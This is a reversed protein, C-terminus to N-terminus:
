ANKKRAYQAQKVPNQKSNLLNETGKEYKFSTQIWTSWM